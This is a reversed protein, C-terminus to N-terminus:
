DVNIASHPIWCNEVDWISDSNWARSPQIQAEKLSYGIWGKGQKAEYYDVVKIDDSQKAKDHWVHRFLTEIDQRQLASPLNGLAINVHITQQRDLTQKAGEITVFTLPRYLMPKRKVANTANPYLLSNFCNLAYRIDKRTQQMKNTLWKDANMRKLQGENCCVTYPRHYTHAVVVYQVHQEYQKFMAAIDDATYNRM